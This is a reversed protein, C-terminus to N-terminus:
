VEGNEKEKEDEYPALLKRRIETVCENLEGCFNKYNGYSPEIHRKCFAFLMYNLDGNVAVSNKAMLDIIEDMAPRNEQKIYPM